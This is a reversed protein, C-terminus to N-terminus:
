AHKRTQMYAHFCALMFDSITEYDSQATAIKIAKIEERPLRLQLPKQDPKPKKGKGTTQAPHAARPPPPPPAALVADTLALAKPM